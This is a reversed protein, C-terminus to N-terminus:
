YESTLLLVNETCYLNVMPLPFDTYPIDQKYVVNKNGDTCVLTASGKQQNVTLTWLQFPENRVAPELVQSFAIIDILWYAGAYEALYKVGDTYTMNGFMHKYWYETGTFQNLDAMTIKHDTMKKQGETQTVRAPMDRGNLLLLPTLM